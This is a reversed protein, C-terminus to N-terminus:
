ALEAVYPTLFPVILGDSQQQILGVGHHFGDRPIVISSPDFDKFLYRTDNNAISANSLVVKLGMQDRASSSIVTRSDATQSLLILSVSSSRGMLTLSNLMQLYNKVLNAPAQQVLAMAEDLLIVRPKFTIPTPSATLKRQRAHMEEVAGKLVKMVRDLFSTGNENSGPSIYEVGSEACYRAWSVDLKPDIITATAGMSRLYQLMVIGLVSKGSGSVGTIIAHGSNSAPVYDYGNMLPFVVRGDARKVAKIDSLRQYHRRHYTGLRFPFALARASALDNSRTDVLQPGTLPRFTLLPYFAVSLIRLVETNLDSDVVFSLPYQLAVRCEGELSKFSVRFSIMFSNDYGSGNSSSLGVNLASEAYAALKTAVAQETLDSSGILTKLLQLEREEM